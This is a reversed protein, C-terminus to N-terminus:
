PQGQSGSSPELLKLISSSSLPPLSGCFDAPLQAEPSFQAQLAAMDSGNMHIRDKFKPKIFPKALKYVISIYWPQHVLHLSKFRAPFAEQVLDFIVNSRAFESTSAKMVEFLSLGGCEIIMSIGHVQTEEDEMLADLILMLTKFCDVAPIKDLDVRRPFVVLVKSGAKTPTDLLAFFDRRLVHEVSSVSQEGLLHAHKHRYKYYNLYLQLSREVDFKRARLFRLLFRDDQRAFVVGKLDSGKEAEAIRGRLEALRTLREAPVEFLERRAKELTAGSISTVAAGPEAASM